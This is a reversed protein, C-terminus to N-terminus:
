IHRVLKCGNGDNHTILTFEEHKQLLNIIDVWAKVEIPGEIIARDKYVTIRYEFDIKM